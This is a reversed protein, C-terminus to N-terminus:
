AVPVQRRIRVPIERSDVILNSSIFGLKANPNMFANSALFQQYVIAIQTSVGFKLPKSPNFLLPQPIASIL